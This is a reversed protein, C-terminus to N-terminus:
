EECDEEDQENLAESLYKSRLKEPLMSIDIQKTKNQKSKKPKNEGYFLDAQELSLFSAEGSVATPKVPDSKNETKAPIRKIEGGRALFEAVTESKMKGGNANM